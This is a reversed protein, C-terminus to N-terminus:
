GATARGPISLSPSVVDLTRRPMLGHTKERLFIDRAYAGVLLAEVGAEDAVRQFELVARELPDKAGAKLGDPM